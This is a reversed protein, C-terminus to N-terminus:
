SVFGSPQPIFLAKTPTAAQCAPSSCVSLCVSPSEAAEQGAPPPLLLLLASCVHGSMGPISLQAAAAAPPFPLPWPPPTPPAALQLLDASSLPPPRPPPAAMHQYLETVVRCGLPTSGAASQIEREKGAPLASHKSVEVHTVWCDADQGSSM